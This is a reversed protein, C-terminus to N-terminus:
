SHISTTDRGSRFDRGLRPSVSVVVGSSRRLEPATSLRTAKWSLHGVGDGARLRGVSNKSALLIARGLAIWVRQLLFFHCASGPETPFKQHLCCIARWQMNCSRVPLTTRFAQGHGWTSCTDLDSEQPPPM